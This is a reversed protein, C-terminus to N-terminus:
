QEGARVPIRIFMDGSSVTGNTPDYAVTPVYDPLRAITSEDTDPGVSYIYLSESTQAVSLGRGKTDAFPDVPLGHPFLHNWEEISEVRQVGQTPFPYKRERPIRFAIDGASITGNTPDYDITAGDNRGDPGVSYVVMADTAPEHLLNLPATTPSFVDAPIGDSLLPHLVEPSGPDPWHGHALLHHRVANATRVLEFKTNAVRHRVRVEDYNPTHATGLSPFPVPAGDNLNVRETPTEFRALKNMAEQLTETETTTTCGNLALKQLGGAALSRLAIGVLRTVLFDDSSEILQGYRYLSLALARAEDHRGQLLLFSVEVRGLKALVQLELFNMVTHDRGTLPRPPIMEEMSFLEALLSYRAPLDTTPSLARILHSFGNRGRESLALGRAQREAEAFAAALMPNGPASATYEARWSDIRKGLEKRDRMRILADLLLIRVHLDDPHAVVLRNALSALEASRPGPPAIRIDSTETSPVAAQGPVPPAPECYAIRFYEEVLPNDVRHLYAAIPPANTTM